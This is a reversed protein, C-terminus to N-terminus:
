GFFGKKKEWYKAHKSVIKEVQIKDKIPFRGIEKKIENYLILRYDDLEYFKVDKWFVKNALRKIYNHTVIIKVPVFFLIWAIIAFIFLPPLFISALVPWIIIHAKMFNTQAWFYGKRYELLIKEDSM